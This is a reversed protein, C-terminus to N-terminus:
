AAKKDKQQQEEVATVREETSSDPAAMGAGPTGARWLKLAWEVGNRKAAKAAYSFERFWQDVQKRWARGRRDNISALTEVGSNLQQIEVTADGRDISLRQPLQWDLCSMWAESRDEVWEEAPEEAPQLLPAATPDAPAAVPAAPAALVRKRPYRLKGTDMRHKLFRVAAPTLFHGILDDGLVLFFIEAKAMVFRQGAGSLDSCCWFFDAGPGGITSLGDRMLVNRIFPDVLPTPSQPTLFKADGQEDTYIIAGGGAIREYAPANDKDSDEKASPIDQGASAAARQKLTRIKDLAGQGGMKVMKKIHLGIASNQKATKTVINILERTSCLPAVAQALESVARTQNAADAQFWHVFNARPIRNSKGSPGRTWYAVRYNNEDFEVGDVINPNDAGAGEAPSEVEMADFIQVCPEGDWRPNEVFAALFEGQKIRTFVAFVQQQYLNRLGSIDCRDPSMAYAEFDAEALADWEEDGSNLTLCIGRGVTHRAIGRCAEKVIGFNEFLWQVKRLIQVRTWADVLHRTDSPMYYLMSGRDPSHATADQYAGFAARFGFAAGAVASKLAALIKM